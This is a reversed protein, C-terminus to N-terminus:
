YGHGIFRGAGVRINREAAAEGSDANADAIALIRMPQILVDLHRPYWRPHPRQEPEGEGRGCLSFLLFYFAFPLFTMTGEKVKQRKAKNRGMWRATTWRTSTSAM